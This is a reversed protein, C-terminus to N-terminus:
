RDRSQIQLELLKIDQKYDEGVSEIARDYKKLAM